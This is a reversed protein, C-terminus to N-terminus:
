YAAPQGIALRPGTDVDVILPKDVEVPRDWGGGLAKALAIYDTAIAVRSVILSDEATFASREADLVDLFSSAGTQYLTRSLRAAERYRQSAETLNGSRVREQALSVLANEVDELAALVTAKFTVFSQDRQAAAVDVAARLKGGNFIPISIAPGVSWAITTSKGLDGLKTATTALSGTLTLNPYLQAEAQGILATAAALQREAARVDPRNVLVQAPIGTPLNRRPAPIAGGRKMRSVVASPDRGLLIGLRHVAEAYATEYMPIAAETSAAQAEAKAVDVGSATGATLRARTLEATERQSAATRRALDIRAQYGRAEVYNSAVDGILTLLTAYLQDESAEAARTAAEIGRRNGGFLDLEWGADFGARYQPYSPGSVIQGGSVGGPKVRLASASGNLTPFLSGEAQRLSARAERIRAKAAAVNLNGEVAEEILRSLQADGFRVWWRDLQAPKQKSSSSARMWKTPLELVPAMYDPGVACGSLMLATLALGAFGRRTTRTVDSM